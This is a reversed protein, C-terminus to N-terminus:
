ARRVRSVAGACTNPRSADTYSIYSRISTLSRANRKAGAVSSTSVTDASSLSWRHSKGPGTKREGSCSWRYCEASKPRHVERETGVGPGASPAGCLLVSRSAEGEQARLEPLEQGTYQATGRATTSCEARTAKCAGRLLISSKLRAVTNPPMSKWSPSSEHSVSSRASLPVEDLVDSDDEVLTGLPGGDTLDGDPGLLDSGDSTCAGAGAGVDAGGVGQISIGGSNNGAGSAGSADSSSRAGRTGSRGGIIM